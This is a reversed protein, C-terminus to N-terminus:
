AVKRKLCHQPCFVKLGLGLFLSPLWVWKLESIFVILGRQSFIAAPSMPAVRIPRNPLFYRGDEFPWFCAVGLGGSTAADFFIHTSVVLFLYLTSLFRRAGWKPGILFGFLGAAVAFLLSHSLGRHGILSGYPVGLYFGISDLDPLLALVLGSVLLKPPINQSGLGLGLALAPAAHSLLTPM